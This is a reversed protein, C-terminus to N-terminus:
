LKAVIFPTTTPQPSGGDPEDTVAIASASGTDATHVYIATADENPLFTGAPIPKGSAPIFWLEFTRGVALKPMSAGIFVVGHGPSFLVRGRSPKQTEGFTVDRTAPDNLIALASELRALDAAPRRSPRAVLILAVSVLGTVLWPLWSASRNSPPMVLSAVRQRLGKPPDVLRVAGTMAAVTSMADAVGPLCVPCRRELHERIESREPDDAIGLAYSAYEPQLEECTM